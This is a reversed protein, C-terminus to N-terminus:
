TVSSSECDRNRSSVISSRAHCEEMLGQSIAYQVLETLSSVQLKSMGRAKHTSVTKISLQLCKAIESVTKGCALMSFTQLERDSLSAYPTRAEVNSLAVAFEEALATSIHIKGQAVRDVATVFEDVSCSKMLYGKAGNRVARVGHTMEDLSTFVLINSHPAIERLQKILTPGNEGCLMPEIV